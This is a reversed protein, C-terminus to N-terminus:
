CRGNSFGAADCLSARFRQVEQATIQRSFSSYDAVILSM